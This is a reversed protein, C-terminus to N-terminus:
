FGLVVVELFIIICYDSFPFSREDVLLVQSALSHERVTEYVKAPIILSTKCPKQM